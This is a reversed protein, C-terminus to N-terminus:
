LKKLPFSSYFIGLYTNLFSNFMVNVDDSNFISDWTQYSLKALFDSITYKNIKRITQLEQNDTQSFCMSITLLQADHDSLGNLVPTITYNGVRSIDIFINDIATTSM